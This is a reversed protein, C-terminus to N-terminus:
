LTLYKETIEKAALYNGSLSYILNLNHATEFVLDRKGLGGFDESIGIAREYYQIAFTLLGIQHFARGVNYEAAQRMTAGDRGGYKDSKENYTRYYQFIYTMAQLIMTHRNDAQRQMARHLYALGISLDLLPDSAVGKARFYYM